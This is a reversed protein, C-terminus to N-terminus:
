WGCNWRYNDNLGDQNQHGDSCNRKENYTALDHLCMGDHCTIFNVSQYAHYADMLQDPFLNDSGYLRTM